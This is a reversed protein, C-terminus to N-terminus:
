KREGIQACSWRVLSEMLEESCSSCYAVVAINKNKLCRPLKEQVGLTTATEHAGADASEKFILFRGCMNCRTARLSGQPVSLCACSLPCELCYKHVLGQKSKPKKM